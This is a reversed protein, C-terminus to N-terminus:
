GELPKLDPEHWFARAETSMLYTKSYYEFPLSTAAFPSALLGNCAQWLPVDNPLTALFRYVTKAWFLTLTEHYGATATNEGGVAKNYAPINGRLFCVGEALSKGRLAWVAVTLHAAHTWAQKPLTGAAFASVLQEIETDTTYMM